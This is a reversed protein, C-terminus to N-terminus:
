ARGEQSTALGIREGRYECLTHWFDVAGDDGAAPPVALDYARREPIM